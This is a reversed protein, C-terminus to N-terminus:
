LRDVANNIANFLTKIANDQMTSRGRTGVVLDTSNAEIIKNYQTIIYM